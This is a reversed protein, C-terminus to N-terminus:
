SSEAAVPATIVEPSAFDFVRWAVLAMGAMAAYCWLGPGVTVNVLSGLKTLAVLVALVYVEPMAWHELANATRTLLREGAIPLGLKPPLLLAALTGLLIAPAIVGCLSVWVALMRMGDEWLGEPGSFLYAVRENRLRDVTVLPLLTAPIFLVLGTLTFALATDRGFRGRIGLLSGCRV